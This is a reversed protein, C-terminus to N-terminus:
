QNFLNKNNIELKVINIAPNPAFKSFSKFFIIAKDVDVNLITSTSLISDVVEHDTTM